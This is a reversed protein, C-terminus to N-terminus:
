SLPAQCLPDCILSRWARGIASASAAANVNILNGWVGSEVVSERDQVSGEKVRAQM